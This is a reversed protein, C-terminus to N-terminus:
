HKENKEEMIIAKLLILYNITDNIKENWKTETYNETSSCMDAISILHKVLFSFLAMRPTTKMLSASRKFHELRDESPAYENGKEILIRKCSELQSNAISDFKEKTM